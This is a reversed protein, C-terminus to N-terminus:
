HAKTHYNLHLHIPPTQWKGDKYDMELMHDSFVKGFPLNNFDVSSLRSNETREIKIDLIENLM